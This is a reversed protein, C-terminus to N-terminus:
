NERHFNRFALILLPNASSFANVTSSLVSMIRKRPRRSSSLVSLDAPATAHLWWTPNITPVLRDSYSSRLYFGGILTRVRQGKNLLRILILTNLLGTQYCSACVIPGRGIQIWLASGDSFLDPRKEQQDLYFLGGTKKYSRKESPSRQPQYPRAVYDATAALRYRRSGVLYERSFENVRISGRGTAWAWASSTSLVANM